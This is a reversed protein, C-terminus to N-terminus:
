FMCISYTIYVSHHMYSKGHSMNSLFQSKAKSAEMAEKTADQLEKTRQLVKQELTRNTNNLTEYLRANDISIAAQQTILRCMVLREATFTASSVSNDLYLISVLKDRHILPMCLVSKIAHQAIFPDRGFNKDNSADSLIVSRKSHIVYNLISDPYLKNARQSSTDSLTQSQSQSKSASHTQKAQMEAFLEFGDVTAMAEVVWKSDDDIHKTARSISANKMDFEDGSTSYSSNIASEKSLLLGREAGANGILINMLNNLLIPLQIEGSIAQTARIVARLDLETFGYEHSTKDKGDIGDINSSSGSHISELFDGESSSTKSSHSRFSGSAFSWHSTSSHQSVSNGGGGASSGGYNNSSQYSNSSLVSNRGTQNSHISPTPSARSHSHLQTSNYKPPRTGPLSNINRPLKNKLITSFENSLLLRKKHAGLRNYLNLAQVLFPSGLAPRDSQQQFWFRAFLENALPEVLHIYPASYSPSRSKKKGSPSFVKGGNGPSHVRTRPTSAIASSIATQYLNSVHLVGREAGAHINTDASTANHNVTNTNMHNDSQPTDYFATQQQGYSRLQNIRAIEAEILHSYPLYNFPQLDSWQSLQINNNEITDWFSSEDM